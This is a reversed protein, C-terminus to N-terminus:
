RDGIVTFITDNKAEPLFSDAKKGCGGFAIGVLCLVFFMKCILSKQM